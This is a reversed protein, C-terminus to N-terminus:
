NGEFIWAATARAPPLDGGIVTAVGAAETKGIAMGHDVSPDPGHGGHAVDEVVVTKWDIRVIGVAKPEEIM